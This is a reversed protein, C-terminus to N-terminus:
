LSGTPSKPAVNHLRSGLVLAEKTREREQRIQAVSKCRTTTRMSGTKRDRTCVLRQDEANNALAKIWELNNAVEVQDPENLDGIVQKGELLAFIRNQRTLLEGRKEMSISDWGQKKNEVDIRIERQQALIGDARTNQDIAGSASAHSFAAFLAAMLLYRGSIRMVVESEDRDDKIPNITASWISPAGVAFFQHYEAAFLKQRSRADRPM